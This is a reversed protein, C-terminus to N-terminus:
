ATLLVLIFIGVVLSLILLKKSQSKRVKTGEVIKRVVDSGGKLLEDLSVDQSM